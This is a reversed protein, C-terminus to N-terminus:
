DEIATKLWEALGSHEFDAAAGYPRNLQPGAVQLHITNGGKVRLQCPSYDSKDSGALSRLTGGLGSVYEILQPEATVRAAYGYSRNGSPGPVQINLRGDRVALQASVYTKGTGALSKRLELM